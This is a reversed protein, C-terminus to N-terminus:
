KPRHISPWSMAPNDANCRYWNGSARQYDNHRHKIANGAGLASARAGVSSVIMNVM